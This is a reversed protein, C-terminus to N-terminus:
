TLHALFLSVIYLLVRLIATVDAIVTDEDTSEIMQACRGSQCRSSRTPEILRITLGYDLGIPFSLSSKLWTCTLSVETISQYSIYYGMYLSDMASFLWFQVSVTFHSQIVFRGVMGASIIFVKARIYLVRVWHVWDYTNLLNVVALMM